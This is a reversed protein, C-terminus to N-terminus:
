AVPKRDLDSYPWHRAAKLKKLLEPGGSEFAYELESRFVEICLLLGHPKGDIDFRRGDPEYRDFVLCANPVDDGIPVESTQGPNLVADFSYMGIATFIGCFRREIAGFPTSTGVEANPPIPHKTFAVLEYTGITSKRPGSGDAGLLEMTAFGTGRLGSPGNPFYYMDVAGGVEFPIIAHGVMDHMPGLVRVIGAEKAEDFHEVQADTLQPRKAKGSSGRRTPAGGGAAGGRNAIAVVIIVVVIAGVIYPLM